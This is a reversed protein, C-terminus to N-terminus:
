GGHIRHAPSGKTAYTISTYHSNPNPIASGWDNTPSEYQHPRAPIHDDPRTFHFQTTPTRVNQVAEVKQNLAELSSSISQRLEALAPAQAPERISSQLTTETRGM